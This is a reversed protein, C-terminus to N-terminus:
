LDSSLSLHGHTELECLDELSVHLVQESVGPGDLGQEQVDDDDSDEDQYQEEV